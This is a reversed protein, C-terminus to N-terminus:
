DPLRLTLTRYKKGLITHTIFDLLILCAPCTARIPSPLPTYLTKTPFGSRFLGSTLGLSLHSSLILISRWFTPHPTISQISSAWYLSLHRVNTFATVFRRTGYFVPFKKVPQSGNLKELLVKSWSSTLLYTILYPLRLWSNTVKLCLSLQYFSVTCFQWNAHFNSRFFVALM